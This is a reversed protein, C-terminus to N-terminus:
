MAMLAISFLAMSLSGASFIRSADSTTTTATSGASSNSPPQGTFNTMAKTPNLLADITYIVGSSTLIPGGTIKGFDTYTDGNWVYVDMEGGQSTQLKKGNQFDSPMLITGNITHYNLVGTQGDADKANMQLQVLNFAEDSPVFFTSGAYGTTMMEFLNTSNWYTPM